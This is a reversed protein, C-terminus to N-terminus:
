PPTLGRATNVDIRATVANTLNYTYVVDVGGRYLDLNNKVTATVPSDNTAATIRFGAAHVRTM